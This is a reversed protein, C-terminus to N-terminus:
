PAGRVSFVNSEYFAATLFTWPTYFARIDDSQADPGTISNSQLTLILSPKCVLSFALSLVNKTCSQELTM